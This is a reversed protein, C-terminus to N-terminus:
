QKVSELAQRLVPEMVNATRFMGLDSPHSGDVTGEDDDGLQNAGEIYSLKKMGENVLKEYIGRLAARRARHTNEWEPLLWANSRTRDEMLIIPTDPRLQRLRRVFNEANANVLELTMNTICDLVYIEADIEAVLDAMALEMHASGSFSFNIVPYDLRRGVIAPYTMGSRTASCGQAISTGYHVIPKKDLPPLAEFHSGKPVGISLAETHNYLPLYMMYERMGKAARDLIARDYETTYPKSSAAWRWRGDVDKAYMDVGSSGVTTMHPMTLNNEKSLERGGTVKHRVRITTADTKFRVVLGTSDASLQWVNPSVVNKAREPLRSFHTLTDRWGKGEIDWKATNYWNVQDITEPEPTYPAQAHSLVPIAIVLLGFLFMKQIKM